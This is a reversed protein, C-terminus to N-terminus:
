ELIQFYENDKILEIFHLINQRDVETLGTTGNVEYQYEYLDLYDDDIVLINRKKMHTRMYLEINFCKDGSFICKFNKIGLFKNLQNSEEGWTSSWICKVDKRKALHKLFEANKESVQWIGRDHKVIIPDEIRSLSNFVGDIDLLLTVKKKFFM